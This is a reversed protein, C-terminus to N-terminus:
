GRVRVGIPQPGPSPQELVEGSWSMFTVKGVLLGKEQYEDCGEESLGLANFM